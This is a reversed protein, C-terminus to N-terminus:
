DLCTLFNGLKALVVAQKEATATTKDNSDGVSVSVHCGETNVVDTETPLRTGGCSATDPASLFGPNIRSLVWKFQDPNDCKGPEVIPFNVNLWVDAPLYPTGSSIVKEVLRAALKAYVTSRAPVPSTNYPLTGDSSGSFAIAPIRKEKSAYVATGVTGSFPVSLWLNSGVNPGSVALEPAQGNWRQPGFQEIGYRM